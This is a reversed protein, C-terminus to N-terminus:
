NLRANQQHIKIQFSFANIVKNFESVNVNIKFYM